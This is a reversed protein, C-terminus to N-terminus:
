IMYALQVERKSNPVNFLHEFQQSDLQLIIM